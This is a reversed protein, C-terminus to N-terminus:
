FFDGQFEPQRKSSSDDRFRGHGNGNGNTTPKDEDNENEDVAEDRYNVLEVEDAPAAQYKYDMTAAGRRLCPCSCCSFVHCLCASCCIIITMGVIVPYRCEATGCNAFFEKFTDKLGKTKMASDTQMSVAPPLTPSSVPVQALTPTTDPPSPQPVSTTVSTSPEPPGGQGKEVTALNGTIPFDYGNNTLVGTYDCDSESWGIRDKDADFLINHGMMANAGIVSGRGETVYFRSTYKDTDPDYEMYHSPPFALLVDYPHQPDLSGALGATKFADYDANAIQSSELQFLVTPLALLEEHTLTLGVHSHPRGAMQQFLNNFENSIGRNWYTDTTGSDVIVGGSNIINNGVDLAKVGESPNKKSSLASEGASGDRMWIRRVRVSFFGTRGDSAKPTYVMPTTDFREDVGGLTLAGAESGKREATPSRSFCLSFQRDNGMKGAQFMQSWFAENRTDMGMIGDALQTKFLGTLYTQCGFVLDFAFNKAHQPDLDETGHDDMLPREHPGGVYCTDIAEYADWRSGEAYSMTLRCESEQCRSKPSICGGQCSNHQFTSSKSEDFLKDIHYRPVGCDNCGTCPFATVGSGTDVIVTQRQPPSGCWLDIYHTGYGQYLAGVQLAADRRRINSHDVREDDANSLLYSEELLARHRRMRQVHHPVLPYTIAAQVFGVPIVSGLTWLLFAASCGHMGVATTHLQQTM